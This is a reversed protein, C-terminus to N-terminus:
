RSGMICFNDNFLDLLRLFEPDEYGYRNEFVVSCMVNSVANDLLRRPDFPAGVSDQFEGLLCPAEELVRDEITRTGLGFEKLAGLAFNRLTRWRQGNFAVIGPPTSCLLPRAPSNAVGWGPLM